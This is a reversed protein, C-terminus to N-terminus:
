APTGRGAVRAQVFGDFVAGHNSWTVLVASATSRVILFREVSEDKRFTVQRM